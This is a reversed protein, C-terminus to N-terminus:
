VLAANRVAPCIIGFAVPMCHSSKMLALIKSGRSIFFVKANLLSKGFAEFLHAGYVLASPFSTFIGKQRISLRAGAPLMLEETFSMLWQNIICSSLPLYLPCCTTGKRAM